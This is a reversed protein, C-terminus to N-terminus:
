KYKKVVSLNHPFLWAIELLTNRMQMYKNFANSMRGVNKYPKCLYYDRLFEKRYALWRDRAEHYKRINKANQEHEYFPPRSPENYGYVSMARRYFPDRLEKV